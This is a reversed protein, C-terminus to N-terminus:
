ALLCCPFASGPECIIGVALCIGSVLREAENTDYWQEAQGPLTIWWLATTTTKGAPM